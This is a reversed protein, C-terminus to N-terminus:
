EWEITGPPKSTVDYVVRNIGSVSNVIRSSVDAIIEYPIRVWDATMGDLSHVARLALVNEYTRQDGMVGVTQLPLLVTFAQWIKDYWGTKYLIEIFIRDAARLIDLRERTVEGLCRVALGPGPFPHRGIIKTPVQLVRGVNRVEDKFLERFPEIVQLTMKEPLGGVNHHSKITVSQGTVAGSEIVDPYLTGQALFAIDGLEKAVEDFSEIFVRGIIKRKQEPEQVGALENLFNESYDHQYIQICSSAFLTKVEAAEQFRLLGNDIFVPVCHEGIAEHMLFALVSSDVGGSLGLLVKQAGVQERIKQITDQVFSTSTWDRHFDAIKFLFNSIITQGQITHNVEPHFQVGYIPQTTHAVAAILNGSSRAIVQFEAPLDAVHDGHSMWVQSDDGVGAFLLSPVPLNIGMPGYERTVGPVVRGGFHRTMLQLGYCIGLMPLDLKFIAPDMQPANQDFSSNPGGSLIVARAGSDQVDRASIGSNVIRCYVQEERIRRAILQTYQSGFDLILVLEHAM